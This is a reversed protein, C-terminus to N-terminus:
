SRRRRIETIKEINFYLSQTSTSYAVQEGSADYISGRLPPIPTEKYGLQAEKEKLSPGEVFQLIALRVILVSFM